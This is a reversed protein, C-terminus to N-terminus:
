GESIAEGEIEILYKPNALRPVVVFTSAPEHGNLRRQRVERIAGIEEPVTTYTVIKVLDTPKMGAAEILAYINDFVQETQAKIGELLTGDAKQGVQGSLILRRANAGHIVGQSFGATPKMLTPPNIFKPM